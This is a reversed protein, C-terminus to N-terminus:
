VIRSDNLIAQTKHAPVAAKHFFGGYKTFIV